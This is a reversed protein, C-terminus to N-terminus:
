TAYSLDGFVQSLTQEHPIKLRVVVKRMGELRSELPISVLVM